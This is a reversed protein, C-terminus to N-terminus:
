KELGNLRHQLTQATHGWNILLAILYETERVHHRQLDDYLQRYDDLGDPQPTPGRGVERALIGYVQKRLQEVAPGPINALLEEPSM